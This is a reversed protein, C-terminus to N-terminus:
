AEVLEEVPAPEPEQLLVIADLLRQDWGPVRNQSQRVYALVDSIPVEIENATLVIKEAALEVTRRGAVTIKDIGPWPKSLPPVQLPLYGRENLTQEILQREEDTWGMEGQGEVSDYYACWRGPTVDPPKNRMEFTKAAIDEAWGPLGRKFKAYLRRQKKELMRGRSDFIPPIESRIPVHVPNEDMWQMCRDDGELFFPPGLVFGLGGM